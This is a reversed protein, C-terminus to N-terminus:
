TSALCAVRARISPVLLDKVQLVVEVHELTLWACERAALRQLLPTLRPAPRRAVVTQPLREHLALTPLKPRPRHDLQQLESTLVAESLQADRDLGREVQTAGVCRRHPMQEGGLRQDM